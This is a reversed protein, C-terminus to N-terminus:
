RITARTLETALRSRRWACGGATGSELLIQGRIELFYPNKRIPRRGARLTEADAKDPYGAKHWAYRGRM